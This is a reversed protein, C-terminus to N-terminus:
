LGPVAITGGPWFWVQLWVLLICGVLWVPPLDVMQRATLKEEKLWDAMAYVEQRPLSFRMLPSSLIVSAPFCASIVPPPVPMPKAM